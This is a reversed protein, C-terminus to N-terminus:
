EEHKNAGNQNLDVSKAEVDIVDPQFLSTKPKTAPLIVISSAGDSNINNQIAVRPTAGDIREHAEELFSVDGELIQKYAQRARVRQMLELHSPKWDKPLKYFKRCDEILAGLAKPNAKEGLVKKLWYDPSNNRYDKWHEGKFGSQGPQFHKLNALSKPNVKRESM